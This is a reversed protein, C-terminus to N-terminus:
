SNCFYLHSLFSINRHVTLVKSMLEASHEAIDIFSEQLAECLAFTLGSIKDLVIDNINTLSILNLDIQYYGYRKNSKEIIRSLWKAPFDQKRIM